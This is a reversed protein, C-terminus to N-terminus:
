IASTTLLAPLHNGWLLALVYTGCIIGIMDYRLLELPPDLPHPSPDQMDIIVVLCTSSNYNYLVNFLNYIPICNCEGDNIGKVNMPVDPM